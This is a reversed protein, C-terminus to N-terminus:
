EDEMIIEDQLIDYSNKEAAKKIFEAYSEKEGLGEPVEIWMNLFIKHQLMKQEVLKENRNDM